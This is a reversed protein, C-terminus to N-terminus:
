PGPSTSTSAPCQLSILAPDSHSLALMAALIVSIVRPGAPARRARPDRSFSPIIGSFFHSPAPLAAFRAALRVDVCQRRCRPLRRAFALDCPAFRRRVRARPPRPILPLLLSWLLIPARQTGAAIHPTAMFRRFIGLANHREPAKNIKSELKMRQGGDSRSM